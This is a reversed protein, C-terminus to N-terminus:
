DIWGKKILIYIAQNLSSANLKRKLNDLHKELTRPSIHLVEAINKQLKGTILLQVCQLERRSIWSKKFLCTIDKVDSHVPYNLYLDEFSPDSIDCFVCTKNEQSKVIIGNGVDKYYEIFNIFVNQNELAFMEIYPADTSGFYFDDTYTENGQVFTFGYRINAIDAFDKYIPEIVNKDILSHPLYATTHINKSNLLVAKRRHNHEFYDNWKPCTSLTFHSNDKYRRLHHFYNIKTNAKFFPSCISTVVEQLKFTLEPTYRM